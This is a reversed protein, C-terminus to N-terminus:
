IFEAELVTASHAPFEYDLSGDVKLLGKERVKVVEEKGMENKATSTPGNLEFIRAEKKLHFNDLEIRVKRAREEDRNIVALYFKKRDESITVSADLYPIGKLDLYDTSFTDSSVETKIAKEGSHNVYLDFAHYIPTLLMGEVTTYIAGLVNVLQSLNAMTVVNCLRHLANFVSCVFLGDSLNYEEEVQGERWVNWEDLIIKVQEKRKLNASAIDIVESLVHLWRELHAPSAVTGYYDKATCWWHISIYDIFEGAESKLVQFDWDPMSAGVGVAILKAEPDVAKILPAYERCKRAYERASCSVYIENGLGWYKVEYAQPHGYEARLKAYETNGQYNCYEVWRLMEDVDGSGMNLCIYPEAGLERCYEIFEDTGFHNNEEVGHLRTPRKEKPGIGDEWHYISSFCGGPWRLVPVRIKKIAELVDKRFGREDSLVSGEEYIGGYVCRYLHEIFHGYINPNIRGIIEKKDVKIKDM